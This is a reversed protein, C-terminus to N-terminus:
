PRNYPGVNRKGTSTGKSYDRVLNNAAIPLESYIPIGENDVLKNNSWHPTSPGPLPQNDLVVPPLQQRQQHSFLTILAQLEEVSQIGMAALSGFVDAPM